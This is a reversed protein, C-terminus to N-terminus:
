NKVIRQVVQHGNYNITVFYVGAAQGNMDVREINEGAITNVEKMSITKGYVDTLIMKATGIANTNFSINAEHTVPVPYVSNINLTGAKRNVQIIKSYDHEDNYNVAKLRYYANTPATNDFYVYHQKTNSTGKGDVRTITSFTVGDTSREVEFFNNDKETNTLWELRNGGEEARGEFAVLEVGLTGDVTGNGIAMDCPLENDGCADNYQIDITLDWKLLTGSSGEIMVIFTGDIFDDANSIAVCTNDSPRHSFTLIAPGANRCAEIDTADGNLPGIVTGQLAGDAPTAELNAFDLTVVVNNTVDCPDINIAYMVNNNLVNNVVVGTNDNSPDDDCGVDKIATGSAPAPLTSNEAYTSGNCPALTNNDVFGLADNGFSGANSQNIYTITVDRATAPNNACGTTAGIIGDLSSIADLQVCNDVAPGIPTSVEACLSFDIDAAPATTGGFEYIRLYYTTGMTLDSVDIREGSLGTCTARERESSLGTGQDSCGLYAIGGTILNCDGGLATTTEFLEIVMDDGNTTGRYLDVWANLNAVTPTFQYWVDAPTANTTNCKRTITFDAIATLDTPTTSTGIVPLTSPDSCTWGHNAATVGDEIFATIDPADLICDTPSPQAYMTQWSFMTLLMLSFLNYHLKM